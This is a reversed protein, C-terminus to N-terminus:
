MNINLMLHATNLTLRRYNNSHQSLDTTKKDLDLQSVNLTKYQYDLKLQQKTLKLM